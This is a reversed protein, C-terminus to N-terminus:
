LRLQGQSTVYAVCNYDHSLQSLTHILEVPPNRMHISIKLIASSLMFAMNERQRKGEENYSNNLSKM